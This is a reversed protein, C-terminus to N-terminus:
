WRASCRRRLSGRSRGASRTSTSGPTLAGPSTRRTGRRRTRSRPTPGRRGGTRRSAPGPPGVKFLNVGATVVEDLADAGSPTTGDFPPPKALVIPFIPQGALLFTGNADFWTGSTPDTFPSAVPPAGGADAPTPMVEVNVQLTGGYGWANGTEIYYTKGAELPIDLSSGYSGCDLATLGDTGPGDQRYVDVETKFASSGFAAAHITEDTPPTISYWVSQSL